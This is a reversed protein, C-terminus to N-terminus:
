PPPPTQDVTVHIVRCGASGREGGEGYGAHVYLRGGAAAFGLGVRPSPPAGAAANSLDTWSQAAPDYVYLDKLYGSWTAALSRREHPETFENYM